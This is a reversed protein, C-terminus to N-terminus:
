NNKLNKKVENIEKQLEIVYITLEEIKQLLRKNMDGLDIGNKEVESSSPIDKLHGFKNIHYEVENLTPLQYNKDFVFDAWTTYVRVREARIAGKVALRYTDNADTFNSTGIGIYSDAKPLTLTTRNNGNDSINFIETQAKDLIQQLTEGGATAVFRYRGFDNRDEMGFFLVAGTNTGVTNSPFDFFNFMRTTNYGLGSGIVSGASFAICRDNKEGGSGFTTGNPLNHNFIAQKSKLLGNVELTSSPSTTGIGVNTNVGTPFVNQSFSVFSLMVLSLSCLQKKMILQKKIVVCLEIFFFM